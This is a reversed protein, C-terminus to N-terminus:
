NRPRGSSSAPRGRRRDPPPPGTTAVDEFTVKTDQEVYVKAKSRGIAMMGGMGQKEAFRRLVFLWLGVFILAPLVWSLLDRLFTDEVVGKFSVKYKDLQEVLAPDVRPTVFETPGDPAPNKYHGRLMDGSVEIDDVTGQELATQFQDYTIQEVRSQSLWIDRLWVVALAALVFYWITFHTRQEMAM